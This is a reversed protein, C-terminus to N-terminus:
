FISPIAFCLSNLDARSLFSAVFELWSEVKLPNENCPYSIEVNLIRYSLCIERSGVVKLTLLWCFSILLIWFFGGVSKFREEGILGQLDEVWEGEMRDGVDEWRGGTFRVTELDILRAASRKAGM